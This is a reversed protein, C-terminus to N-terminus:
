RKFAKTLRARQREADRVAEAPLRLLDHEVLYQRARRILEGDLCRKPDAHWELFADLREEGLIEQLGRNLWIAAGLARDIEGVTRGALLDPEQEVAELILGAALELAPNDPISVRPRGFLDKL